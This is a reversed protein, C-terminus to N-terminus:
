TYGFTRGSDVARNSLEALHSLVEGLAEVSAWRGVVIAPAGDAEPQWIRAQLWGVKALLPWQRSLWGVLVSPVEFRYTEVFLLASRSMGWWRLPILNLSWGQRLVLAPAQQSRTKKLYSSLYRGPDRKLAQVNGASGCPWTQGTVTRFAQRILRDLRGKGLLWRRKRRAKCRFVFHWHPRGSSQPEVVFLWHDPVPVRCAAAEMGCQRRLAEGFRRRIVDSLRQCGNPIGNLAQAVPVPLTVTWIGYCGRDQRVLSCFDEIQRTGHDTL